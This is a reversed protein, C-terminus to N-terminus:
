EYWTTDCRILYTRDWVDISYKQYFMYITALYMAYTGIACM